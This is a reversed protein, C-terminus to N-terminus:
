RKSPNNEILLKQIEPSKYDGRLEIKFQIWASRKILSVVDYDTGIGSIVELKRFNTFRAKSNSSVNPIAEDLNVTYTSGALSISSVHATAGAGTGRIIEIEDGVSVHALFADTSTFTDTDTWTVFFNNNVVDDVYQNDETRYKIVVKDTSNELPRMNIKMRQWFSRIDGSVLKSTILYGRNDVSSYEKSAFLAYINDSGTTYVRAGALYRGDGKDVPYLAGVREIDADGWSDNTTGDYKGLSQEQYLSTGDYVWVGSAMVYSGTSVSYIKASLLIHIKGDIVKMGNPAVLFHPNFGDIWDYPMDFVPLRAVEKLGGGSNALLQGKGNITYLIGNLSCGAYTYDDYTKIPTDYTETFTDWPFILGEGRNKNYTGIFTRLGDDTIWTMYYDKPLVIRNLAKVLSDDITHLVNGDPVLLKNGFTYLYHDPYTLGLSLWSTTWTGNHLMRLSTKLPVVLRDTTGGNGFVVMNGSATTPTNTLSDQTLSAKASSGGKWIHGSSPDFASQTLVVYVYTGASGFADTRVISFPIQFDADDDSDFVRYMRESLRFSGKKSDFDINKTAVFSGFFDGNGRVWKNKEKDPLTIM